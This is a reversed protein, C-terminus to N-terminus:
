FDYYRNFLRTRIGGQVIMTSVDSLSNSTNRMSVDAFISMRTKQNLLYNATFQVWILKTTLGQGTENNYDSVRTDYSEYINQGFNLGSSDYGVEAYSGKFRFDFNNIKYRAIAIVETFNAGLPHALAARYHGYNGQTTRHQYTYPRVYNLEVQLQLNKVGLVDFSKVGLQVGQKNGWWGNGARVEDLVFEDLMFQGYLQNKSNLKVKANIGLLVNDPSGISFEVPRYFIFPNMYSLDFGRAGLSDAYWVVAEFIGISAHKGINFDLFHMSTYKKLFPEDDSPNDNSLDQMVTFLNTYQIKWVETVIKFFPYSFANDSLLLSRYGEGVFNKDQGFQFTFHKNLEFQITGTAFSYDYMEGVQKVRGQGPVVRTINVNSDLYNAFHAQNEYFNANFSFREGIFGGVQVGRTNAYITRDYEQDKGASFEFVPDLYLFYDDQAVQLLHEKYLKRGTLSRNFKTDKVNRDLLSDVSGCRAVSKWLFPQIGTHADCGVQNLAPQLLYNVDESIPAFGLKYTQAQLTLAPLFFLVLFIRFFTSEARNIYKEVITSKTPNM